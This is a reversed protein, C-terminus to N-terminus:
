KILKKSAEPQGNKVLIEGDESEYDVWFKKKLYKLREKFDRINKVINRKMAEVKLKERDVKQDSNELSRILDFLEGARGEPLKVGEPKPTQVLVLSDIPRFKKDDWGVKVLKPRMWMDAPREADKTKTSSIEIVGKDKSDRIVGFEFDIGARLASSGRGRGGNNHGTHHIVMVTCGYPDRLYRNIHRIFTMMAESSNEDGPGFNAALTDLVIFGPKGYAAVLKDIEEKVAKVSGETLVDIAVRSFHVQGEELKVGNEVEWAAKRRALGGFGEGALYFVNGQKVDRGRWPHGSAVCFAIDLSLFSKFTDTEGFLVGTTNNEIFENILFEPPQITLATSDVFLSASGESGESVESDSKIPRTNTGKQIWQYLTAFTAPNQPSMKCRKWHSDVSNSAEYKSGERSWKDVLEFVEEDGQSEFHFITIVKHWDTESLDPNLQSLLRECEELPPRSPQKQNAADWEEFTEPTAQAGPEPLPLSIKGGGSGLNIGLAKKIDALKYRTPNIEGVPRTKFKKGPNKMNFSFPVRAVRSLDCVAPDSGFKNVLWQQIPKYEKLPCDEVLLYVHFKGPSTEYVMSAPIGAEELEKLAPGVPTGDFDMFLANVSSINKDNRKEGEPIEQIPNYIGFGEKNLKVAQRIAEDFPAIIPRAKKKKDLEHFPYIRIPDTTGHLTQFYQKLLALEGEQPTVTNQNM